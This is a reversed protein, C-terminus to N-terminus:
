ADDRFARYYNAGCAPTGAIRYCRVYEEIADAPFARGNWARLFYRLWVEEAGPIM